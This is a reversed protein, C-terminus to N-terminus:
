SVGEPRLRRLLGRVAHFFNAKATGPSVGLLDAIDRYALGRGARLLLTQRQRRPLERIARSLLARNETELLQALAGPRPDTPEAVLELPLSLRRRNRALNITIRTLWTALRSDGRFRGLSRHARIFTEQALDDAEDHSGTLRWALSYITRMHREVLREFALGDGARFAELLEEDSPGDPV